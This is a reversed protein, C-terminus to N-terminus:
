EDDKKNKAAVISTVIAIVIALGVIIVLPIVPFRDGTAPSVAALTLISLMDM